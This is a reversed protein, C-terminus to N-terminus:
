ALLALLAEEEEDEEARKKILAATTREVAKISATIERKTKAELLADIKADLAEIQAQLEPGADAVAEEAEEIVEEIKEREANSFRDDGIKHRHEEWGYRGGARDPAAASKRLDVGDGSWLWSAADTNLVISTAHQLTVDTGSWSWSAADTALERGLELSAATASWAFSASDTAIERGHELSVDTASWAFSASDTPLDRNARLTAATGTWAWAATEASLTTDNLSSKTLTVDTGTWTWSAADTELDRNARLTAATGTWTWSAADTPLDRNARLTAATASWTFTASDTAIEWGHELSAATGTWTWTASDAAIDRNARLTAATGTWTWSASDTAIERGRELNAATGSWTYSASDTAIERGRELNAATGSWTFSASDAALTKNSGTSPRIAVVISVWPSNAAGTGASNGNARTRSGTAGATALTGDGIWCVTGTRRATITPTSGSVTGSGSGDWSGEAFILFADNTATTISNYTTTTGLAGTASQAAVPTADIPTSTNCGTLRYMYGETDASSHTFTYNGSEGSAVKYFVHASITYPDAKDQSTPSNTVEVFGSPPTISLAPLLSGDGVFLVAVLLDGNAIGSPATITSNTRTGYTPTNSVSGVAIAM